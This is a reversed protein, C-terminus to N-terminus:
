GSSILMSMGWTLLGALLCYCSMPIITKRILNGEQGVLGVTASAAVVNHVTVMNGAAGGVAQAAVILTPLVDIKQATSFQFLSFMLNSITNSGAVFAGLAGIWPALLPWAAGTINASTEALLLPMSELGSLNYESGSQIFVRVMPVAFTLAVAASLIQSGALRWSELIQSRTMRHLAYTGLVTMLFMFGPLYLPQISQGIGTGLLNSPGISVSKLLAQIGLEPVRTILLLLAVLVYPSWARLTSMPRGAVAGKAEPHLQGSWDPEWLEPDPFDWSGVSRFWGMRAAPVVIALGAAAGILSPFEPGLFRACLVYPLTFAAAAFLAFPWIDLGDRFRRRAGFFRSLLGCLFLPITLGCLAHLVAVKFTVDEILWAFSLNRASLYEAVVPADLGGAVGVLIPTGVAGFSVPTSQIILGVMVAAAAPFGLAMLLPATVAAPTGFGSAGEIFSGFLWGVIIAQVRRDRSLGMLSARIASVAGSRTITALLLLAGFVIYLLSVALILGQITAAALVELRVRWVVAALLLTGLYALPMAQRAPLRLWVLLIAVTLIPTLALLSLVM